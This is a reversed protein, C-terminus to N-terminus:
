VSLRIVLTNRGAVEIEKVTVNATQGVWKSTDKGWVAVLAERNTKNLNLTKEEGVSDKVQFQLQRKPTGDDYTFKTSEVWRGEDLFELTEGNTYDAAKVFKGGLIM